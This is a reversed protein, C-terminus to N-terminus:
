PSTISIVLLFEVPGARLKQVALRRQATAESPRFGALRRSGMLSGMLEGSCRLVDNQEGSWSIWRRSIKLSFPVIKVVFRTKSKEALASWGFV